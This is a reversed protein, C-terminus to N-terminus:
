RMVRRGLEVVGAAMTLLLAHELAAFFALSGGGAGYVSENMTNLLVWGDFALQYTAALAAVAGV